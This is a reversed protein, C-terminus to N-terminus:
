SQRFLRAPYDAYEPAYAFADLFPAELAAADGATVPRIREDAETTPDRLELLLTVGIKSPTIHAKGGYYEHKWGLRYPMRGFAAASMRRHISLLRRPKHPAPTSRSM